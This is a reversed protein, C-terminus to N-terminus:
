ENNDKSSFFINLEKHIASKQDSITKEKLSTPVKKDKLNIFEGSLKNILQEVANVSFKELNSIRNGLEAFKEEIYSSLKVLLTLARDISPALEEISIKKELKQIKRDSGLEKLSELIDESQPLANFISTTYISYERDGMIENVSKQFTNISNLIPKTNIIDPDTKHLLIILEPDEKLYKLIELVEKLYDITDDFKENDQVDIIYIFVDLELFYRDPNKLYQDRYDKQGGFDWIVLKTDDLEITKRDIQITPELNSITNINSTKTLMQIMATKGANGLGVFAIKKGKMRQAKREPIETSTLLRAGIIWNQLDKINIETKELNKINEETISINALEQIKEINFINIIDKNINPNIGKLTIIPLKAIEKPDTTDKIKLLEKIKEKSLVSLEESMM